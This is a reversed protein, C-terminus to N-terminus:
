GSQTIHVVEKSAGSGRCANNAMDHGYRQSWLAVCCLVWGTIKDVWILQINSKQKM